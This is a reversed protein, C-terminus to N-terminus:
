EYYRGKKNTEIERPRIYVSFKSSYKLPFGDWRKINRAHPRNKRMEQLMEEGPENVGRGRIDIRWKSNSKKMLKRIEEVLIINLTNNPINSLLHLYPQRTEKKPPNTKWNTRHYISVKM